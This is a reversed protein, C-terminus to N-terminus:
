SRTRRRGRKATQASLRVNSACPGRCVDHWLAEAIMSDKDRAFDTPEGDDFLDLIDTFDAAAASRELDKQILGRIYPAL